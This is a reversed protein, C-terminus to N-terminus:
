EYPAFYGSVDLILDTTNSAFAGIRNNTVPVIALNSTVSGDQANLTSVLPQALGAPWLTLYGLPGKPVVTANLVLAQASPPIGCATGADYTAAGSLPSNGARTDLARCPIIPYFVLGDYAGRAAFYGNTDIVLDADQTGYVSIDNSIGAKIIAANAVVTGTPANLTSVLPQTQGGPWASLFDLSGHPIATFNLSYAKASTQLNCASQLLPVARPSNGALDPGGLPGDSNRTDLVRCPPVTVFWMASYDFPDFYGTIDIVVHTDNTAFVTVGGGSGAAVIAANAKIRGDDSNLTSVLPRTGGTPSVTLYGLPGSPVVTINLAYALASVPIGCSSQPLLFDRSTSGAVLPGGFPGESNRTDAIRCPTVPVFGLGVSMNPTATNLQFILISRGAILVSASRSSGTTNSSISVSVSGSGVGSSPSNIAIWPASSTATWGCNSGITTFPIAQTAADSYATFSSLAFQFSCGAPDQTVTISQGGILVHGTRPTSAQNNELNVSISQGAPVSSPRNSATIWSADTTFNWSCNTSRGPLQVGNADAVTIAQADTTYACPALSSPNVITSIAFSSTLNATSDAQELVFVRSGASNWSVVNGHGAYTKGAVSFTPAPTESQLNLDNSAFFQIVTDQVGYISNQYPDGPIVAITKAAQSDDAWRFGGLALPASGAPQLDQSAVDSVSFVSGCGSLLRTGDQTFWLGGCALNQNPYTSFGSIIPSSQLDYTGLGSQDLYLKHGSPGVRAANVGSALSVQKPTGTSLDLSTGSTGTSKQFTYAFGNPGLAVINAVDQLVYVKSVQTNVLDVASAWGDHGVIASKGDASLSLSLPAPGLPFVQDANAVPDFIHMENPAASVMVFRDLAKDYEGAVANFSLPVFSENPAPIDQTIAVTQGGASISGSRRQGTSNRQLEFVLPTDGSGYTGSVITIWSSDASATFTCNTGASINVTYLGGDGEDRTSTSDLMTTCTTPNRLAISQVAYANTLGSTADAQDVAYLNSGDSSFFVFRGHAAFQKSGVTFSTLAFSGAPTLYQSNLLKVHTDDVPPSTPYPPVQAIYAVQSRSASETLSQLPSGSPVTSLYTMDETANTSSNVVTGNGAYIRNGDPSFWVSGGASHASFYPWANQVVRTGNLVLRYMVSPSSSVAQYIQGNVPNVGAGSVPSGGTGAISGSLITSQGTGLDVYITSPDSNNGGLIIPNIYLASNSLLVSGIGIGGPFTNQVAASRLDIYYVSGSTGVAAHLGDPSVSLSGPLNDLPVTVDRNAAPDFIHLVNPSGSIMVIRDLASSYQAASPNFSLPVTQASLIAVSCAIAVLLRPSFLM